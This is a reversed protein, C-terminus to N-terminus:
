MQFINGLVVENTPEQPKPRLIDYALAYTVELRNRFFYYIATLAALFLAYFLYYAVTDSFPLTVGLMGLILDGYSLVSALTILLYYWWFQLDLRFLKFRNGRMMKKSERLAQMGGARPNDMLVYSAMRYQYVMPVVMVLMIIGMLIFMPIMAEMLRMQTAEDMVELVAQPDPNAATLPMLIETLPRALPSFAFILVGLYCAAMIAAFYIAYQFFACRLLPWFRDMGMRMANPSTYQRRSIRLMAAIYGFEVALMLLSQLIPALQQFTSLISRIGMNGLGGTQSIQNGLLATVATVAVSALVLIGVYILLIKKAQPADALRREATKILARRDHITM